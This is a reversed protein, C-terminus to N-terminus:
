VTSPVAQQAPVPREDTEMADVPILPTHRVSLRIGDAVRTLHQLFVLWLMTMAFMELCEEFSKSFHLLTDYPNEDFSRATWYDLHWMNTLATYPNLPHDPTLGEFFDMLVAFALCSFAVFVVARPKWGRLERLLFGFIFLGMLAFAPMFVIQWRYSPFMDLMWAGIASAEGAGDFWTGVREHIHAGDDFALYTFFIAITAWGRRQWTSGHQRVIAWIVWVTVALMATQMIAFWGPLSDERATNFLRRIASSSSGGAMNVHYDLTFLLLEISVCFMLVTRLVAGTDISLQKDTNM